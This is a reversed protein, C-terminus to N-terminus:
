ALEPVPHTDHHIIISTHPLIDVAHTLHMGESVVGTEDATIRLTNESNSELSSLVKHGSETNVFIDRQIVKVDGDFRISTAIIGDGRILEAIPAM